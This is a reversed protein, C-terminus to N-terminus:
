ARYRSAFTEPRREILDRQFPSRIIAGHCVRHSSRGPRHEMRDALVVASVTM